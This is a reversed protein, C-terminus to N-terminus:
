DDLILELNYRHAIERMIELKIEDAGQVHVRDLGQIVRMIYYIGGLIYIDESM